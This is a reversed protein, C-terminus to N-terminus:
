RSEYIVKGERFARQIFRKHSIRELEEPTYVYVEIGRGPIAQNLDKL